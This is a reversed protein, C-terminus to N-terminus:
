PRASASADYNPPPLLPLEALATQFAEHGRLSDLLATMRQKMAERQANEAKNGNKDKAPFRNKREGGQAM